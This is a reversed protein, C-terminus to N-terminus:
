QTIAGTRRKKSHVLEHVPDNNEDYVLARQGFALAIWAWECYPSAGFNRVPYSTLLNRIRTTRAFKSTASLNPTAERREIGIDAKRPQAPPLKRPKM